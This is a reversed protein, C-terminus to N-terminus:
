SPMLIRAELVLRTTPTIKFREDIRYGVVWLPIEQQVLIPTTRRVEFPVKLDVFFDKIKKHGKMGLPIFRDGPRFNRLVLPFRTKEADLDATWPSVPPNWEGKARVALSLSKGIEHIFITGPGELSYCFGGARGEDQDIFHLFDYTRRVILSDPLNLRGQPHASGALEDIAHIHKRGIRRVSGRVTVLIKRIIRKRLVAPLALFPRLPISIKGDSVLGAEKGIWEASLSDLFESEERLSSTTEGLHEILRPQYQLLLPVLELRIRNRFFEANRNSSDEAFSLEKEKLYSEIEHRTVEILPRIINDRKPPIAALGSVGSGRLLRMLFTEAQDHLHHGVAVSAALHKERVRELFEYRGDRASEELSLTGKKMPPSAKELEFPLGLSLALSRVLETECEDEGPRWGHDFHAVVLQLGFENSLRYLVHVLCVSDAGGSVAAIVKDGTGIMAYRLITKRVKEILEMPKNM